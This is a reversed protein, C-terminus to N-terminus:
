PLSRAYTFHFSGRYAPVTVQTEARVRVPFGFARLPELAGGPRQLYALLKAPDGIAVMQYPPAVRKTSCLITTGVCNLSTFTILRIGNLAIAEAGSAWLENVVAQLDTYHLIVTNPDGSPPLPRPSDRLEVIVGPGTLPALGALVRLQELRQGLVALKVTGQASNQQYARLQENLSAIQQELASRNREQARLLIGLEALQESPVRLEQRILLETRIQTVALFGAIALVFGLAIQWRSVRLTRLVQEAM